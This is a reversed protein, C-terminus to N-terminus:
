LVPVQPTRDVAYDQMTTRASVVEKGAEAGAELEPCPPKGAETKTGM